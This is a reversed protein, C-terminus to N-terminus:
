RPGSRRRPPPAMPAAYTFDGSSTVSQGDPNTVIIKVTGGNRSPSVVTLSTPSNFTVSGAFLDGFKVIAGNQFNAGTITVTTGGTAPGNAPTFSVIAPPPIIGVYNFSTTSTVSQGDPNTVTIPVGGAAAAPSIANISTASNFTVSTANASGFRVTAGSQFGAGTITVATGGSTPGGTPSFSTLTPAAALELVAFAGSMDEHGTGCLSQTCVYTFTGATNAVFTVTSTQNKRLIRSTQDYRELFWGHTVNADNSAQTLNLTVTDGVNVVFPLPTIDFSGQRAVINFTRAVAAASDVVPTTRVVLDPMM